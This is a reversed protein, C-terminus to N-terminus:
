ENKRVHYTEALNMSHLKLDEYVNSILLLNLGRQALQTAYALGIGDSGGTVVAWQGLSKFDVKKGIYLNVYLAYTFKVVFYALTVAGLYTLYIYM